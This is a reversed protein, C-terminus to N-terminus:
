PTFRPEIVHFIRDLVELPRMVPFPLHINEFGPHLHSRPVRLPDCTRGSFNLDIRLFKLGSAPLLELHFKYSLLKTRGAEARLTIGFELRAGSAFQVRDVNIQTEGTDLDRRKLQHAGDRIRHADRERQLYSRIESLCEHPAPLALRDLDDAM